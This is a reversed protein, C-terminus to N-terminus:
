THEQQAPQFSRSLCNNHWDARTRDRLYSFRASLLNLLHHSDDLRFLLRRFNRCGRRFLVSVEQSVPKLIYSRMLTMGPFNFPLLL